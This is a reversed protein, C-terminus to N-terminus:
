SDRMDAPEWLKCDRCDKETVIRPVEPIRVCLARTRNSPRLFDSRKRFLIWRCGFPAHSRNIPSIM